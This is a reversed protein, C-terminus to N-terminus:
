KGNESIVYQFTINIPVTALEGNSGVSYSTSGISQPFCSKLTYKRSETPMGNTKPDVAPVPQQTPLPNTNVFSNDILVLEIDVLGEQVSINKHEDYVRRSWGDLIDRLAYQNDCYFTLSYSSNEPYSATMPVQFDFTRFSVKSSSIQRSPISGGQAYLLLDGSDGSFIDGISKVRFVNNRALGRKTITNYFDTIGYGTQQAM